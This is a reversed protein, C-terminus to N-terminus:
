AGSTAETFRRGADAVYAILEPPGVIQFAAGSAALVMAPWELQDVSMRLRSSTADVPEVTGWREVLRQGEDAPLQIVAEVEHRTAASQGQLQAQVYAAPDGGPIERPEFRWRTSRPDSLRDVRFTRWADRDLDWAVLYLRRGVTVLRHPEVHRVSPGGERPAYDFRVRELDQVAGALLALTNADITPGGGFV